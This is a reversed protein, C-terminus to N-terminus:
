SLCVADETYVGHKRTEQLTDRAMASHTCDDFSM